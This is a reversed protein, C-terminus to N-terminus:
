FNSSLLRFLIHFSLSRQTFSACLPVKVDLVGTHVLVCNGPLKRPVKGVTFGREMLNFHNSVTTHSIFSLPPTSVPLSFRRLSGSQRASVSHASM